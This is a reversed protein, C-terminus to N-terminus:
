SFLRALTKQLTPPRATALNIFEYAPSGGEVPTGINLIMTRSSRTKNSAQRLALADLLPKGIHPLWVIALVDGNHTNLADALIRSDAEDYAHVTCNEPLFRRTLSDKEYEMAYHPLKSAHPELVLTSQPNLRNEFDAFITNM